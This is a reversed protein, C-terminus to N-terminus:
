QTREGIADGGADLPHAGVGFPQGARQHQEDDQARAAREPECTAEHQQPPEPMPQARGDDTGFAPHAM